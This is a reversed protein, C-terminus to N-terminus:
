DIFGDTSKEIKIKEQEYEKNRIMLNILAYPLTLYFPYGLLLDVIRQEANSYRVILKPFYYETLLMLTILIVFFIFAFLRHEKKITLIIGMFVLFVLMIISDMGSNYIWSPPITLIDLGWFLYIYKEYNLDPKTRIRIFILILIINIIGTIFILEVPLGMVINVLNGVIAFLIAV